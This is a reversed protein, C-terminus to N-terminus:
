FEARLREITRPLDFKDMYLATATAALHIRAPRDALLNTVATPIAEVTTVLRVAGSEAWFPETLHGANTLVPRGLALCAMVSTRRTSVGDPYPQIFLDCAALHESVEPATLPGSALVYGAFAPHAQRFNAAFEAGGRGVCLFCLHEGGEQTFLPLLLAELAARYRPGFTGFHGILRRSTSTQETGLLRTRLAAVRQDDSERPMTSPIPLWEPRVRGTFRRLMEVWAPISAFVRRASRAVFWAMIRNVLALFNHRVVRGSGIWPYTVEHFMVTINCRRGQRWLWVCFPLNMARHGFSHPVYQVLLRTGASEQRLAAALEARGAPGFCDPLRHVIVAAANEEPADCPPAWVHVEDGAAALGEAVLRTYDSVGGHQPPYEGSLIFWRVSPTPNNKQMATPM